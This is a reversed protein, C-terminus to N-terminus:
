SKGLDALTKEVSLALKKAETYMKLRFSDNDKIYEFKGRCTFPPFEEIMVIRAFAMLKEVIDSSAKNSIKLSVRGSCPNITLKSYSGTTGMVELKRENIPCCVRKSAEIKINKEKIEDKLASVIKKLVTVHNNSDVLMTAIERSSYKEVIRDIKNM